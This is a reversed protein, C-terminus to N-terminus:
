DPSETRKRKLPREDPDIDLYPKYPEQPRKLGRTEKYLDDVHKAFNMVRLMTDPRTRGEHYWERLRIQAFKPLRNMTLAVQCGEPVAM